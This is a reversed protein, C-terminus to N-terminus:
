GHEAGGVKEIVAEFAERMFSEPFAGEFGEAAQLEEFRTCARDIAEDSLLASLPIVPVLVFIPNDCRCVKPHDVPGDSSGGCRECVLAPLAGREPVKPSDQYTSPSNM